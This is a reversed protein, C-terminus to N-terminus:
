SFRTLKSLLPHNNSVDILGQRILTRNAPDNWPSYMFSIANTLSKQDITPGTYNYVKIYENVRRAFEVEDIDYKRKRLEDDSVLTVRWNTNYNSHFEGISSVFQRLDKM